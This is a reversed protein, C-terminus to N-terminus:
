SGKRASRLRIGLVVIGGVVLILLIMTVVMGTPFTTAEMDSVSAAPQTTAPTTQSATPPATAPAAATATATRSAANGATATFRFTGEIPHSDASVVRWTVTYEGSPADPSVSQSAVDDVIEVKGTAWNRGDPDVVTVKSGLALPPESFTLKISAPVKAVTQGDQPTSGSLSDHASAASVPVTLLCLAAALTVLSRRISDTIITTRV